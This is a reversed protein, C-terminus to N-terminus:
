SNLHNSKKIKRHQLRMLFRFFINIRTGAPGGAAPQAPAPQRQLVAGGPTQELRPLLPQGPVPLEVSVDTPYVIWDARVPLYM